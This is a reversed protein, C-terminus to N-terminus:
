RTNVILQGLHCWKLHLCHDLLEPAIIRYSLFPCQVEIARRIYYISLQERLTIDLGDHGVDEARYQLAQSPELSIFYAFLNHAANAVM